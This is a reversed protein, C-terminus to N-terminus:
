HYLTHQFPYKHAETPYFVENPKEIKIIAHSLSYLDTTIELYQMMRYDAPIVYEGHKFLSVFTQSNKTRDAKNEKVFGTTSVMRNDKIDYTYENSPPSKKFGFMNSLKKIKENDTEPVFGNPTILINSNVDIESKILSVVIYLHILRKYWWSPVYIYEYSAQENINTGEIVYASLEFNKPYLLGSLLKDAKNAGAEEVSNFQDFKNENSWEYNIDKIKGLLRHLARLDEPHIQIYDINM